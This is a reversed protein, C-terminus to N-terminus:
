GLLYEVSGTLLYSLTESAMSATSLNYYRLGLVLSDGPHLLEDGVWDLTTEDTAWMEESAAQVVSMVVTKRKLLSWTLINSDYNNGPLDEWLRSGPKAIAANINHSDRQILVMLTFHKSTIVPVQDLLTHDLAFELKLARLNVTDPTNVVFPKELVILGDFAGLYLATYNVVHTNARYFPYKYHRYKKNM